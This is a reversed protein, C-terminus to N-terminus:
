ANADLQGQTMTETKKCLNNDKHRVIYDISRNKDLIQVDNKDDNLLERNLGFQDNNNDTAKNYMVFRKINYKKAAEMAHRSGSDGEGKVYSAILIIAKAFMAQLRDREIYRNIAAYGTAKDCYESLLLGGSDVIQKALDNNSDHFIQYVPSPLIAITKMGHEVCYQHAVTDCGRALGSVIVTDHDQFCELIKIERKKVEEKPELVGIVAVNKNLNKLLSIDGRYFLLYPKKNDPVNKNIVPFDADFKCIIGTKELNGLQTEYYKITEKIENDKDKFPINKIKSEESYKQWFSENNEIYGHRQAAFIKTATESYQFM